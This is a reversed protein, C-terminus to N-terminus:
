RWETPPRASSAFFQQQVASGDIAARGIGRPGSKVRNAANAWYIHSTNVAIGQPNSAGAIFQPEEEEAEETVPNIKARGIAGCGNIPLQLVDKELPGTDTWYIHEGDVAVYRPTTPTQLTVTEEDEEIECETPGPAIFAPDVNTGDLDARGIGGTSPDAWYIHSADIALGVAHKPIFEDEVDAPNGDISERVIAAQPQETGTKADDTLMEPSTFFAEEGNAGAAQFAAPAPGAADTGGPGTGNTKESASVHITCALSPDTCGESGQPSQPQTPNQRLYLQGSAVATFYISGDETIAGSDQLYYGRVAGGERVSGANIGKAWDYPGAFAGRALEAETEADENLVSALHLTKSQADWAYLNRAGETAEPLLKAKAEFLVVSGDKSAGAYSFEAGHVYPTIFIPESGDTGEELLAETPPDALQTAKSFVKSLDPLWGLVQAREGTTAPPLLGQTSWNESGRLALYLPLAQAGKGGPIGFTSGLTIGGGGEAAKVLSVRGTVDGGNKETPSAQEYARGDPLGSLSAGHTAFIHDPGKIVTANHAVLRVHYLTGPTLGTVPAKVVVASSGEGADADPVPVRACASKACDSTGYEFRYHTDEGGPNLEAEFTATETGVESVKTATIQPPAASANAAGLGACVLVLSTAIAASRM